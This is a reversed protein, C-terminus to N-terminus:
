EWVEEARNLAFAFRCLPYEYSFSLPEAHQARLLREAIYLGLGSGSGSNRTKGRYHLRFLNKEDTPDFDRCVNEIVLRITGTSEHAKQRGSSQKQSDSFESSNEANQPQVGGDSCSFRLTITEGEDSYKVANDCLNYLAEWVAERDAYVYLPTDEGSGLERFSLQKRAAKQSLTLVVTHALEGPDFVSFRTDQTPMDDSKNSQCSLSNEDRKHGFFARFGGNKGLHKANKSAKSVNKKNARKSKKNSDKEPECLEDFFEDALEGTLRDTLRALREAENAILFLAQTRQEETMANQESRKGSSREYEYSLLLDAYGKIGGLPSRLDHAVTRLLLKNQEAIQKAHRDKQLSSLAFYVATGACITSFLGSAAYILMTPEQM